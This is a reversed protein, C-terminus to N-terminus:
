LGKLPKSPDFTSSPPAPAEACTANTFIARVFSNHLVVNEKGITSPVLRDLEEKSLRFSLFRALLSSYHSEKAPGLIKLFM